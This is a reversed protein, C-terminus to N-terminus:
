ESNIELNTGTLKIGKEFSIFHFFFLSVSQLVVSFHCRLHKYICRHNDNHEKTDHLLDINSRYNKDSVITSIYNKVKPFDSFSFM